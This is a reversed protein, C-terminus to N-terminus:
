RQRKELLLRHGKCQRRGIGHELIELHIGSNALIQHLVVDFEFAAMAKKEDVCTALRRSRKCGDAKGAKSLSPETASPVAGDWLSCSEGARECSRRSSGAACRM